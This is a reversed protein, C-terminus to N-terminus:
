TVPAGWALELGAAIASWTYRSEVLHRASRALAASDEPHEAMRLAGEIFDEPSEALLVERGNEIELGECGLPTSIVPVGSAFAELVKLRTGSGSLIPVVM